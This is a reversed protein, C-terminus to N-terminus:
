PIRRDSTLRSNLIRIKPAVEDRSRNIIHKCSHCVELPWSICLKLFYTWALVEGEISTSGEKILSERGRIGDLDAWGNLDGSAGGSESSLVVNLVRIELPWKTKLVYFVPLLNKFRSSVGKHPMIQSRIFGLVQSAREPVPSPGRHAQLGSWCPPVWRPGPM